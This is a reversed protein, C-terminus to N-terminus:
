MPRWRRIIIELMFPKGFISIDNILGAFLQVVIIRLRMGIIEGEGGSMRMVLVNMGVELM